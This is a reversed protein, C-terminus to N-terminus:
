EKVRLYCEYDRGYGGADIWVDLDVIKYGLRRYKIEWDYLRKEMKDYGYPEGMIPLYSTANGWRLGASVYNKIVFWEWQNDFMQRWGVALKEFIRMPRKYMGIKRYNM